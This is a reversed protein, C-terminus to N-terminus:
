GHGDNLGPEIGARGVKLGVGVGHARQHGVQVRLHGLGPLAAALGRAFCM